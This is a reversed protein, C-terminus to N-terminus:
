GSVRIRFYGAELKGNPDMLIVEMFLMLDPPFPTWLGCNRSASNTQNLWAPNDHDALHAM